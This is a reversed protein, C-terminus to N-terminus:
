LKRQNECRRRDQDQKTSKEEERGWGGQGRAGGGLGAERVEREEEM